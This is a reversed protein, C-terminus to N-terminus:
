NSKPTSDMTGDLSSGTGVISTKQGLALMEPVLFRSGVARPVSTRFKHDSKKRAAKGYRGRAKQHKM